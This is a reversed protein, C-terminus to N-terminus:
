IQDGTGKIKLSTNGQEGSIFLMIRRNGMVGPLAESNAFAPCVRTWCSRPEAQDSCLHNWHRYWLSIYCNWRYIQQFMWSTASHNLRETRPEPNSDQQCVYAWSQWQVPYGNCLAKWQWGEMTEIHSCAPRLPESQHADSQLGAPRLNSGWQPRCCEKTSISWSINEITM